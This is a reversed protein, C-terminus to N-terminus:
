SPIRPTPVVIGEGSKQVPIGRIVVQAGTVFLSYFGRCLPCMTPTEHPILVASCAPNNSIILLPAEVEWEVGQCSTCSVKIKQGEM